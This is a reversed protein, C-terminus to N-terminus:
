EGNLVRPVAAVVSELDAQSNYGQFCVRLLARGNWAMVPAEISFEDLLRRQAARAEIGGPLPLSVMQAYWAPTDPSLAPLGTLATIKRRAERALAHCEERVRPWDHKRQFEIAAPVSLYAAIDQTGQWELESLFPTPARTESEDGWSVVLPKIMHQLDARVYLFGSGKPACMWKHCNAAYIDAGLTSLQVPIQGPGHAGDVITTIGAERARRTLAEVPLKLATPSTVHSFFLVRTRPTVRSWIDEILHEESEVPVPVPAEVYRAGRESCIARWMRRMAGYEHDTSLVEDGPGLTLSRAAINVGVTANPVYVIDQPDAGVYGALAERAEAMLGRFRRGLFEVPQRELEEQWRRYVDFVPRPCAGFSGHNLFVVDPRLLFLDRLRPPM